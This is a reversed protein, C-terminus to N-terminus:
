REYQVWQRSIRTALLTLGLIILFLIWAMACAYGMALDEFSSNYVTMAYFLTARGPGGGTM